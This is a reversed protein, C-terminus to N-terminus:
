RVGLTHSRITNGGMAVTAAMAERIRGKDPYSPSPSVNEDLGLWYIDPSLSLLLTTLLILDCKGASRLLSVRVSSAIRRVM